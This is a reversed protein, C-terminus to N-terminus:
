SENNAIKKKMIWKQSFSGKEKIKDQHVIDMQQLSTGMEICFANLVEVIDAMEELCPNELFEDVEEHLKKKLFYLFERPTAEHFDAISSEKQMIEPIRDRVLKKVYNRQSKNNMNSFSSTIPLVILLMLFTFFTNM